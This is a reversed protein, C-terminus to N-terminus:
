VDGAARRGRVVEYVAWNARRYRLTFHEPLADLLPSLEGYYAPDVLVHTVGLADVFAMREDPTEASNFFPQVRYRQMRDDFLRHYAPFLDRQNLFTREISPFAVMQQPVFLSPPYPNWLDFAFIASVPVNTQIWEIVAYDPACTTREALMPPNDPFLDESFRAPMRPTTVCPLTAIMDRPTAVQRMPLDPNVPLPSLTPRASWLAFPIVCLAFPVAHRYFPERLAGDIATVVRGEGSAVLAAPVLFGLAWVGLATGIILMWGPYQLWTLREVGLFPHDAAPPQPPVTFTPRDIQHTDVVEADTVLARVNEESVDHLTYYWANVTDSYSDTPKGDALGFQHELAARRADPLGATWRVNVLATRPAPPDTPWLAVLALVSVAAALARVGVTWKPPWRWLALLTLGYAAVLPALFGHGRRTLSLTALLAVAGALTGAILSSLRTRDVRSLAVVMAYLFAGAILYVFFIVNRVPTYLIEFYTAYVYPVALVPIAMVALYALTSASLLWVLPQRRFLVIVAPGAFLFFPTLGNWLQDFNPLFEALLESAPSFLLASASSAKVTSLLRAREDSVIDSVLAATRGQWASYTAAVIIVLGLLLMARRAYPWFGRFAASVLLFCGLYAAFQVIERIHVVTLMLVLMATTTLFFLRERRAGGQLYGFAVVLLAPLLVTMAVDSAHSYPVLQSWGFSFGPVMAFIGTCVLVVATVTVACAVAGGGFVARAALHLMVLAAPGWLFRLKDYLFLADIDGLRAILAMYYHTGPFPYTYVIGPAFYINDLRPADLQALRRVIAVHVQDEYSQVPSGVGYLFTGLTVLLALVIVEDITIVITASSRRIVPAVALLAATGLIALISVADLHAAIALITALQVIGFSFAAGFGLTEILTLQPRPAWLLLALAGPVVGVALAPLVVRLAAAWAQGADLFRCGVAAGIALLLFVAAARGSM